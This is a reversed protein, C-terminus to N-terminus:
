VLPKQDITFMGQDFMAKAFALLDTQLEKEPIDIIERLEEYVEVISSHKSMVEWMIEASENLNFFLGTESNFILTEDDVKQLMVTSPITYYPSPTM